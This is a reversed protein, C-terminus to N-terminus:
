ESLFSSVKTWPHTCIIVVGDSYRSSPGFKKVMFRKKMKWCVSPPKVCNHHGLSRFCFFCNFNIACLKKLFFIKPPCLDKEHPWQYGQKPHGGQTEFGPHIGWKRAKDGAQLSNRLNVEPAVGASQIFTLMVASGKQDVYRCVHRCANTSTWPMFRRGDMGCVTRMASYVVRGSRSPTCLTTQLVDFETGLFCCFLKSCDFQYKVLCGGM